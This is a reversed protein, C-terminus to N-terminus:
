GGQCKVDKLNYHHPKGRTVASRWHRLSFCRDNSWVSKQLRSVQPHDESPLLNRLKVFARQQAKSLQVQINESRHRSVSGNEGKLIEPWDRQWKKKQMKKHEALWSEFTERSIFRDNV